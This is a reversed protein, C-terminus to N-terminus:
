KVTEDPAAEMKPVQLKVAMAGAATLAYEMGYPGGHLVIINNAGIKRRISNLAERVRARAAVDDTPLLRQTGSLPRTSIDKVMDGVGAGFSTSLPLCAAVEQELLTLKKYKM